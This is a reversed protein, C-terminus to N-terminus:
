NRTSVFVRHQGVCDRQPIERIERLEVLRDVCALLTWSGVGSIGNIAEQLRFAGAEKLLEQAKDRVALFAVQGEESFLHQKQELYTYM